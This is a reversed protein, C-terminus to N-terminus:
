VSRKLSFAIGTLLSGTAASTVMLAIIGYVESGYSPVVYYVIWGIVAFVIFVWTILYARQIRRCLFRVTIGILFPVVFIFMYNKIIQGM